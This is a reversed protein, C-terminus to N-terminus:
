ANFAIALALTIIRSDNKAYHMSNYFELMASANHLYITLLWTNFYLMMLKYVYNSFQKSLRASFNYSIRFLVIYFIILIILETRSKTSNMEEYIFVNIYNCYISM